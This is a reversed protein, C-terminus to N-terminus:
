ASRETSHIIHLIHVYGFTVLLICTARQGSICSTPRCLVKIKIHEVRMTLRIHTFIHTIEGLARREVIHEAALELGLPGELLEVMQQRCETKSADADM